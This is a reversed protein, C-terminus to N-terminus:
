KNNKIVSLLQKKYVNDCHRMSESIKWSGGYKEKLLNIVGSIDQSSGIFINKDKPFIQWITPDLLFLRKEDEIVLIDHAQRDSLMGKCVRVGYEPYEDLIWCGVLRVIESCQDKAAIQLNDSSTLLLNVVRKQIKEIIDKNM